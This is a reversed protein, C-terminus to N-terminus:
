GGASVQRVEVLELGLDSLRDLLTRLATADPVDSRLVTMPPQEHAELDDLDALLTQSVHGKVSIEYATM